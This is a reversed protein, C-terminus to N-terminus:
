NPILSFDLCASGTILPSWCWVRVRWRKETMVPAAGAARLYGGPHIWVMVPRREGASVSATWVNLFLCDESVKPPNAPPNAATNAGRFAPQMCMAGFQDAKRIGDWHAVAQPARWRLGGVPPAAYPIGRFVRVGGSAGDVGSVLGSNLRVSDEAAPLASSAKALWGGIAFVTAICWWGHRM